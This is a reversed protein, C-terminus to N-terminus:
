VFSRVGQVIVALGVLVSAVFLALLAWRTFLRLALLPERWPTPGSTPIDLESAGRPATLFPQWRNTFSEPLRNPDFFDSHSFGTELRDVVPVNTDFGRYGSPGSDPIVYPALRVPLDRGGRHLLVAEAQGRDILEKWPFDPRLISAVLIVRGVSLDPHRLLAHGILWTGLSHSVVDPRPGLRSGPDEGALTKITQALRDALDQLRWRFLVGLQVWGYKYIYVPVSRRYATAVRWALAEEWAGRSRMGHICLVWPVDRSASAHRVFIESAELDHSDIREDEVPCIGAALDSESLFSGCRKHLTVTSLELLNLAAARILSERVNEIPLSLSDALQDPKFTLRGRHEETQRRLYDVLTQPAAEELLKWARDRSSSM